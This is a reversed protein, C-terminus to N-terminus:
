ILIIKNNYNGAPVIPINLPKYLELWVKVQQSQWWWPSLDGDSTCGPQWAVQIQSFLDKHQIITAVNAQDTTTNGVVNVWWNITRNQNQAYCIYYYAIIFVFIAQRLSM